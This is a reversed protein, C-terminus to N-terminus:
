QAAHYAEVVKAPIRARDSVEYGNDRAWGRIADRESKSSPSSALPTRTTRRRGSVRRGAAVYSELAARLAKAEGTTLDIEYIVGDLGFSVTEDADADSLDSVLTM